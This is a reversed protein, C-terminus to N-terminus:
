VVKVSQIDRLMVVCEICAEQEGFPLDDLVDATAIQEIRIADRNGDLFRGTEIRGDKMKLEVERGNALHLLLKKLRSM